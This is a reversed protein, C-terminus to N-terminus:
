LLLPHRRMSSKTGDLMGHMLHHNKTRLIIPRCCVVTIQDIMSHEHKDNTSQIREGVWKEVDPTNRGDAGGELAPKRAQPFMRRRFAVRSEGFCPPPQSYQMTAPIAHLKDIILELKDTTHNILCIKPQSRAM